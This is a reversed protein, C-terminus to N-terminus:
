LDERLASCKNRGMGRNEQGGENGGADAATTTLGRVQVGCSQGEGRAVASASAQLSNNGSLGSSNRKVIQASCPTISCVFVVSLPRRFFERYGFEIVYTTTHSLM